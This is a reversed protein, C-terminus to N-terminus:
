RYAKKRPAIKEVLVQANKKDWWYIVRYDGRRLRYLNQELVGKLPGIDCGGRANFPDEELCHLTSKIAEAVEAPLEQHEEVARPNLLVRYRRL